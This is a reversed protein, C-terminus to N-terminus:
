EGYVSVAKDIDLLSNEPLPHHIVDVPVHLEDELRNKLDSLMLLSVGPTTFEVLVDLDSNETQRGTAYSGFYMIKKLPYLPAVLNIKEKILEHTLM